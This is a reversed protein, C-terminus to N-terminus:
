DALIVPLDSEYVDQDFDLQLAQSSPPARSPPLHVLGVHKLYRAVETPDKIAGMAYQIMLFPLGTAVWAFQGLYFGAFNDM